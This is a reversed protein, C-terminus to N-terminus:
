QETHDQTKLRTSQIICDQSAPLSITFLTGQGPNSRVAITGNMQKILSYSVALGLGTGEGVDKTTFFPDFVKVLDQESIGLSLLVQYISRIM